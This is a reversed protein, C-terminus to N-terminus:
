EHIRDLTYSGIRIRRHKFATLTLIILFSQLALIFAGVPLFTKPFVQESYDFYTLLIYLTEALKFIYVPLIAYMAFELNRLLNLQTSEDSGVRKLVRIFIFHVMILLAFIYNDIKQFYFKNTYLGYFGCIVILPLVTVSLYFFKKWPLLKLIRKM